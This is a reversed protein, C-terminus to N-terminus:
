QAIRVFYLTAKHKGHKLFSQMSEAPLQIESELTCITEKWQDSLFCFLVTTGRLEQFPSVNRKFISYSM